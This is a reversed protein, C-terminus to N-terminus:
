AAAATMATSGDRAQLHLNAGKALLTASIAERGQGCAWMLATYGYTNRANCDMGAQLFLEVARLDGGAAKQVFVDATFPVNQSRLEAAAPASQPGPARCGMMLALGALLSYRLYPKQSGSM